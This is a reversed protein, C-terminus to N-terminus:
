KKLQDDILNKQSLSMQATSRGECELARPSDENAREMDRDKAGEDLSVQFECNKTKDGSELPSKIVIHECNLIFVAETPITNVEEEHKLIEDM